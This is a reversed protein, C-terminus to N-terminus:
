WRSSTTTRPWPQTVSGTEGTNCPRWTATPFRASSIGRSSTRRISRAHPMPLRALLADSLGYKDIIRVEPGAYYGGFGVGGWVPIDAPHERAAKGARVWDHDPGHLFPGPSLLGATPHFARQCDDIDNLCDPRLAAFHEGLTPFGASWAAALGAFAAAAVLDPEPAIELQGLLLAAVLLPVSFFRGSM